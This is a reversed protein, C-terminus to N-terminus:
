KLTHKRSVDIIATDTLLNRGVLFSFEFDERDSLTVEINEKIEGMTIWLKVVYRREPEGVKRKILVTRALKQELSIAKGTKPDPIVFRVFRIGDREIMQINEAHISSTEAGSDVRAEMKIGPPDVFVNEIEGIIPLNLEGATAPVTKVVVKEVVKPEPCMVAPVKCVPCPPPAPCLPEMPTADVKPQDEGVSTSSESQPQVQACGALVLLGVISVLLGVRM